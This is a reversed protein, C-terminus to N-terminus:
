SPRNRHVGHTNAGSGLRNTGLAELGERALWQSEESPFTWVQVASDSSSLQGPRSVTARNSASDLFIRAWGFSELVKERIVWANEGIGGGFIIADVGGLAAIYSGLYKRIRYCYMDVALRARPNTSTLLEQMDASTESVGLLGSRRNILEDFGSSDIGAERALYAPIGPDLDGSRTAMVLGEAPSFGMSTDIPRGNQIAAMSAGGGLQLTIARGGPPRGQSEHWQEWLARHALGHFGYRRIGYRETIDRPLAYDTERPLSAFYATDFAAAQDAAPFCRRSAEIWRLATPNHLPALHALSRISEVVQPSLVRSHHFDGGHVVRHVVLAPQHAGSSGVVDRLAQEPKQEGPGTHLRRRRRLTPGTREFLDLKVSTSGTNVTLLQM